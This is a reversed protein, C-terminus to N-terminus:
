GKVMQHQVATLLDRYAWHVLTNEEVFPLGGTLFLKQVAHFLKLNRESLGGKLQESFATTMQSSQVSQETKNAWDICGKEVEFLLPQLHEDILKRSADNLPYDRCAQVLCKVIGVFSASMCIRAFVEFPVNHVWYAHPNQITNIEFQYRSPVKEQLITIGYSSTNRLGVIAWKEDSLRVQDRPVVFTKITGNENKANLSFFTAHDAGTCRSWTGNIVYEKQKEKFTGSAFGSGAIVAEKASFLEQAAQHSLFGSFWNAGAGLNLTWGLGGQVSAARILQDVGEKIGLELGGYKEPVFLKFLKQDYLEHLREKSLFSQRYEEITFKKSM